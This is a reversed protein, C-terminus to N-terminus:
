EKNIINWCVKSFIDSNYSELLTKRGKAGIEYINNRDINKLINFLTLGDDAEFLYGNKGNVIISNVSHVGDSAILLKGRCLADLPPIGFPEFQSAHIFIDCQNMEDLYQDSEIWGLFTINERLSDLQGKVINFLMGGGAIRFTFRSLLNETHLKSLASVIAGYGKREIFNNAIFVNITENPERLRKSREDNIITNIKVYADDHCYPFVMLQGNSIGYNDHYFKLTSETACFIYDLLNFLCYKRILYKVNKKLIPNPHDSFICCKTKFIFSLIITAFCYINNWGGLIAIDHKRYIKWFGLLTIEDYFVGKTGEFNEWKKHSDKRWRYIVDVEFDKRLYEVWKDIYPAPHNTTLLIKKM